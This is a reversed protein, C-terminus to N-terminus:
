VQEVHIHIGGPGGSPNERFIEATPNEPIMEIIPTEEVPSNNPPLEEGAEYIIGGGDDESIIFLGPELSQSLGMLGFSSLQIFLDM